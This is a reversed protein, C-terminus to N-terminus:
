LQDHLTKNAYWHYNRKKLKAIAKNAANRVEERTDGTLSKLIKQYDVPNENMRAAAVDVVARRVLISPDNSLHSLVSTLGLCFFDEKLATALMYRVARSDSFAWEGIMTTRTLIDAHELASAITRRLENRVSPDRDSALQSLLPMVAGMDFSEIHTSLLECVKIRVDARKDTAISAMMKLKEDRSLESDSMEDIINDVLSM